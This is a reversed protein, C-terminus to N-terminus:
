QGKVQNVVGKMARWAALTRFGFFLTFFFSVATLGVFSAFVMPKSIDVTFLVIGFAIFAGAAIGLLGTELSTTQTATGISDLEPESISYM